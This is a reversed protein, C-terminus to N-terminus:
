NIGGEPEYSGEGRKWGSLSSKMVRRVGRLKLPSTQFPKHTVTLEAHGHSITLTNTVYCAASANSVGGVAYVPCLSWDLNCSKRKGMIILITMTIMITM